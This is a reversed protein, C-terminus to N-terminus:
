DFQIPSSSSQPCYKAFLEDVSDIQERKCTGARCAIGSNTCYNFDLYMAMLEFKEDDKDVVVNLLDWVDSPWRPLTSLRMLQVLMENFFASIQVDWIGMSKNSKFKQYTNKLIEILSCCTMKNNNVRAVLINNWYVGVLHVCGNLLRIQFREPSLKVCQNVAAVWGGVNQMRLLFEKSSPVIGDNLLIITALTPKDLLGCRCLSSSSAAEIPPEHLFPQFDQKEEKNTTYPAAQARQLYDVRNM